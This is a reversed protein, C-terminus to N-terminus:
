TVLVKKTWFTIIRTPRNYIKNFISDFLKWFRFGFYKLFVHARFHLLVKNSFTKYSFVIEPSRFLNELINEDFTHIHAHRPTPKNCHVCLSYELKEKYPTSIILTGEPKLVSLLSEVFAKPNTVHEIIESAVICDFKNDAFPLNLADAVLGFHKESSYLSLAKVINKHSVDMSFIEVGQKVMEKALWASGSGVDLINNIGVPIHTLIYERLRRDDEHTGGIRKEFYDYVEADKRYHEIYNLSNNNEAIIQSIYSTFVPIQDIIEYTNNCNNCDIAKEANNVILKGHCQPCVLHSIVKKYESM